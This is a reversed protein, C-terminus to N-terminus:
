ENGAGPAHVPVDRRWAEPLWKAFRRSFYMARVVIVGCAIFMAFQLREGVGLYSLWAGFAAVGTAIVIYFIFAGRVSFGGDLMLHHFHERDASLPSRLRSTRRLITWLLEYVPLAVLWLVVVPAMARAAGQTLDLCLMALVFGILTSGADGMFCRLSHPLGIPLNFILFGTVAGALILGMPFAFAVHTPWAIAVIGTLAVLSVAGALGDMGDLMNFANIAGIVFFLLVLYATLGQFEIPGTGLPDGLSFIGKGQTATVVLLTAVAQVSLRAWPSVDFRDDLMGITVLLACASIFAAIQASGYPLFGVGVSLGLFMALGGTVPIEGTHRKRGGPRDILDIAVAIPRLAFIALVSILFSACAALLTM